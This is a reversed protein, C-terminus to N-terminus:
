STVQVRARASTIPLEVYAKVAMSRAKRTPMAPPLASKEHSRPARGPEGVANARSWAASAMVTVSVSASNSCTGASKRVTRRPDPPSGAGTWSVWIMILAKASSGVVSSIPAVKGQATATAARSGPRTPWSTPFM